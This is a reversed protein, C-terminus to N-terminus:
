SFKLEKDKIKKVKKEKGLVRICKTLLPFLDNCNISAMSKRNNFVNISWQKKTGYFSLFQLIKAKKEKLLFSWYHM